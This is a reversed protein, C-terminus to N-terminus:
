VIREEMRAQGEYMWRRCVHMAEMHGQGKHTREEVRGEGEYM